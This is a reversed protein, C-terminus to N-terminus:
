GIFQWFIANSIVHMKWPKPPKPDASGMVLWGMPNIVKELNEFVRLRAEKNMYILVNRCMIFDFKLKPPEDLLNHQSFYIQNKVVNPIKINLNNLKDLKFTKSLLPLFTYIRKKEDKRYISFNGKQASEIVTQSIDTAYIEFQKNQLINDWLLALSYAEQGFSCGASWIKMKDKLIQNKITQFVAEDRFFSTEKNSVKEALNNFIKLLSQDVIKKNEFDFKYNLNELIQIIENNPKLGTVKEFFKNKNM